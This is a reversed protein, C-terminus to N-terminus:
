VVTGGRDKILRIVQQKDLGCININNYLCQLICEDDTIAPRVSFGHKDTTDGLFESM